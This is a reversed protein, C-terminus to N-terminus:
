GGPLVAVVHEAIALSSTAAPSPANRLCTVGDSRTIRFDDVLAGDREVAQARVGVRGREVDALGISPVYAQALRLYARVSLSGRLERAGTRWHRRALRWTGPWTALDRVDALSVSGRRYGERALALVANPGIELGGTVTRTFHVGLFPYRPDPVPYVLGRVVDQKAPLVSLYEGRFPVIRLDDSGPGALRDSQLGGCVIVQRALVSEGSALVIRQGGATRVLAVVECGLRVSGGAAVVDSALSEAIARFDTIATQPSHLAAIGRVGPEIAAIGAADVRTLGPVLNSSASRELAALRDLESSSVAVVLKGLTEYALGRSACYERLLSRGRTCLAAKLSGPAYYLGAHVVGSNHGTQHTGVASEKELVVVDSGPRRLTLERAIALGVIGGGIVATLERAM